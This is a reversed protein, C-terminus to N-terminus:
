FGQAFAGLSQDVFSFGGIVLARALQRHESAFQCGLALELPASHFFIDPSHHLFYTQCGLMRYLLDSCLNLPFQTGSLLLEPREAFIERRFQGLADQAAGELAPTRLNM